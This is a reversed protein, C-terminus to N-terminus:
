RFPAREDTRDAPMRARLCRDVRGVLRAHVDEALGPVAAHGRIDRLRLRLPGDAVDLVGVRDVLMERHGLDEVRGPVVGLWRRAVDRHIELTNAGYELAYEVRNTQWPLKGLKRIPVFGRGLMYAVPAGFVFGRSEMGVILDVQAQRYPAALTELALRFSQPDHLLPTIDKFVVGPIPFDQVDRIRAVLQARVEDQVIM